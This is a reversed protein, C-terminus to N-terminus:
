LAILVSAGASLGASTQASANNGAAVSAATANANNGAYIQMLASNFPDFMNPAAGQTYGAASTASAAQAPAGSRGLVLQFPDTAQSQQTQALQFQRNFQDNTTNRQLDANALQGQLDLASNSRALDANTSYQSLAFQNAANANTASASNSAAANQAALQAATSYALQSNQNQASANALGATNAAGANTAAASNASNANFQNLSTLSDNVGTAFTRGAQLQQQGAADTNAAFQQAAQLKAKQAADTSLIEAGISGNSDNLGRAAYASRVSQQANGLESATLNGGTALQSSAQQELQQQLPSKQGYNMADSFLQPTLAGNAARTATFSTPDMQSAAGLTGPSADTTTARAADGLAGASALNANISLPTASGAANVSSSLSQMTAALDPNANLYAQRAQGGLNSVDNIDAQRQATNATADQASLQTGAQGYLQLLGPAGNGGLLSDALSQQALADYKPGYLANAAYVDPASKLQAALSDAAVKAPDIPDPTAPVPAEHALKGQSLDKLSPPGGGM